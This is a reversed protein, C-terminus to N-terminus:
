FQGNLMKKHIILQLQSTNEQPYANNARRQKTGIQANHTKTRQKSKKRCIKQKQKHQNKDLVSRALISIGFWLNGAIYSCYLEKQEKRTPLKSCYWIQGKLSVVRKCVYTKKHKCLFTSFPYYFYLSRLNCVMQSLM